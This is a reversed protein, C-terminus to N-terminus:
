RTNIANINFLMEEVPQGYTIPIDPALVEDWDRLESFTMRNGGQVFTGIRGQKLRSWNDWGKGSFVDYINRTVRRIENM